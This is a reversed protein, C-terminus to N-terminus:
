HIIGDDISHPRSSQTSLQRKVTTALIGLLDLAPSRYYCAEACPLPGLSPDRKKKHALAPISMGCALLYTIKWGPLEAAM